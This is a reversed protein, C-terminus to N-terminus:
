VAYTIDFGWRSSLILCQFDLSPFPFILFFSLFDTTQSIRYIMENKWLMSLVIGLLSLRDSVDKKGEGIMNGGIEIAMAENLKPIEGSRGLGLVWLRTKVECWHYVTFLPFLASSLILFHLVLWWVLTQAQPLQLDM